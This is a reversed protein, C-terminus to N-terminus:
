KKPDLDILLNVGANVRTSPSAGLRYLLRSIGVNFGLVASPQYNFSFLLYHTGEEKGLFFRYQASFNIYYNFNVRLGGDVALNWLPNQFTFDRNWDVGALVYLPLRFIRQDLLARLSLTNAFHLDWYDTRVLDNTSPILGHFQVGLYLPWLKVGFGPQFSFANVSRYANTLAVGLIDVYTLDLHRWGLGLSFRFVGIELLGLVSVNLRSAYNTFGSATSPTQEIVGQSNTQYSQSLLMTVEDARLSLQLRHKSENLLFVKRKDLGRNSDGAAAAVGFILCIMVLLNKM